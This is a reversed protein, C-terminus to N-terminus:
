AGVEGPETVAVAAAELQHCDADDSQRCWKCLDAYWAGWTENSTVHPHDLRSFEVYEHKFYRHQGEPTASMPDVGLVVAIERLIKVEDTELFGSGWDMSSCIIDFLKKVTETELVLFEPLEVKVGDLKEAM